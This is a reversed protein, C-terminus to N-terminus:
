VFCPHIPKPEGGGAAILRREPVSKYLAILESDWGARQLHADIDLVLCFRRSANKLALDLGMGHGINRNLMIARVGEQEKLWEVSGDESNNDVIVIEYPMHTFKRV